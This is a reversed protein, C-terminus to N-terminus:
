AASALARGVAALDRIDNLLWGLRSVELVLLFSDKIVGVAPAGAINM